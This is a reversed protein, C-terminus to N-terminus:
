GGLGTGQLCEQLGFTYVAQRTAFDKGSVLPLTANIVDNLSQHNMAMLLNIAQKTSINLQQIEHNRKAIVFLCPKAVYEIIEDRYSLINSSATNQEYLTKADQHNGFEVNELPQVNLDYFGTCGSLLICLTIITLPKM